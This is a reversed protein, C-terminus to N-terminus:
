SIIESSQVQNSNFLNRIYEGDYYQEYYPFNFFILYFHNMITVYFSNWVSVSVEDLVWLQSNCFCCIRPGSIVSRGVFFCKFFISVNRKTIYNEIDLVAEKFPATKCLGTFKEKFKEYPKINNDEIWASFCLFAVLFVRSFYSDSNAVGARWVPTGAYLFQLSVHSRRFYESITRVM